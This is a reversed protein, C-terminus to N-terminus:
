RQPHFSPPHFVFLAISRDLTQMRKEFKLVLHGLPTSTCISGLGLPSHGGLLDKKRSGAGMLLTFDAESYYLLFTIWQNIFPPPLTWARFCRRELPLHVPSKLFTFPSLDRCWWETHPIKLMHLDERRAGPVKQVRKRKSM